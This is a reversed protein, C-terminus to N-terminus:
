VMECYYCWFGFWSTAGHLWQRWRHVRLRWREGVARLGPHVVRLDVLEGRPQCLLEKQHTGGALYDVTTVGHDALDALLMLDVATGPSRVPMDPEVLTGAQYCDLRHALRLGYNAALPRGDVALLSLVARDPGMAAILRRHFEEFRPAAFCGRQGRAEWRRQHLDTLERYIRQAQGASDARLFTGSLAQRLSRQGSRRTPRSLSAFWAEYGASLDIVWAPGLSDQRLCWGHRGLDAAWAALPSGASVANLHLHRPHSLIYREILALAPQASDPLYLLDLYEPCTEEAEDEGTSLFRLCTGGLRGGLNGVYLPLAATLQEGQWVCLIRLPRPGQGYHSGYVEWWLTLWEWSLPPSAHPSAAHLARWDAEIALWRPVETIVELRAEV